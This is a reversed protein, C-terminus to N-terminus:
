FALFLFPVEKMVIHKLKLDELVAEVVLDASQLTALFPFRSSVFYSVEVRGCVKFHKEWPEASTLPTIAAM